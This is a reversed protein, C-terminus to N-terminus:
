RRLLRGPVPLAAAPSQSTFNPKQAPKIQDVTADPSTLPQRTGDVPVGGIGCYVGRLTAPLPPTSKATEVLMADHDEDLSCGPSCSIKQPRFICTELRAHIHRVQGRLFRRADAPLCYNNGSFCTHTVNRISALNGTEGERPM